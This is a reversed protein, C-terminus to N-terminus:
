QNNLFTLIDKKVNLEDSCNCIENSDLLNQPEDCFGNNLLLPVKFVILVIKCNVRQDIAICKRGQVLNTELFLKSPTM